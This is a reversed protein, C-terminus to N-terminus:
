IALMKCGLIRAGAYLFMRTPIIPCIGSSFSAYHINNVRGRIEKGREGYRMSEYLTSMNLLLPENEHYKMM